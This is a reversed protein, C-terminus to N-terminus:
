EPAKIMSMLIYEHYLLNLVMFSCGHFGQEVDDANNGDNRHKDRYDIQDGEQHETAVEAEVCEAGDAFKSAGGTRDYRDGDTSTENCGKSPKSISLLM